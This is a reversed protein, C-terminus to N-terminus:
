SSMAVSTIGARFQSLSLNFVDVAQFMSNYCECSRRIYKNRAYSTEFRSISFTQPHRTVARPVKYLVLENLSPCDITSNVIKYLLVQDAIRRRVSLPQLGHCREAEGYTDWRKYSLYNLMRLTRHQIREIRDIHVGFHPCWVPSCYELISRVYSTYLTKVVEPSRLPKTVRSIFGLMRSARSIIREYHGRFTLGDDLVVGLDKVEDVVKLESDGLKYHYKIPDKGRTFRITNCKDVNLYLFNVSCYDTLRDLDRQLSMCDDISQVRSYVKMDDAYLIFKSFTFCKNIDNIYINFLTPGLISGQPVGSPIGMWDSRHGGVVVAQRRNSIYSSFWRFLDGCIGLNDLKLLLTSHNVRDFAKSYDTYVADVQGGRELGDLVYDTFVILNTSTSRGQVFGHQAEIIYPRISSNLQDQVVHEFIKAFTCLKSIPRYNAVDEHKGSKFIPTILADKWRSPFCGERLSRYFVISLPVSLNNRCKSVLLPHIGDVGASQNTNINSLYKLVLDPNVIIDNLIGVNTTESYTHSASQTVRSFSNHFHVSFLNSINHVNNASVGELFVTKPIYNQNSKSKVFRWLTNPDSKLTSKMNNMYGNYCEKALKKHRSRLTTFTVYDFHNGYKKYKKFVKFKERSLKILPLTYWPPYSYSITCKTKKPIYEEILNDLIDYLIDVCEECAKGHFREHWDIDGLRENMGGYDGKHFLRVVRAIPL